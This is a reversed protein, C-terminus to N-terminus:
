KLIKIVIYNKRKQWQKKSGMISQGVKQRIVAMLLIKM